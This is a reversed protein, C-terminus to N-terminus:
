ILKMSTAKYIASVMTKCDLKDFILQRKRKLSSESIKLRQAIQKIPIDEATSKLIAIEELDLAKIDSPLFKGDIFEYNEGTQINVIKAKCFVSLFHSVTVHCLGLWMNGNEDLKYPVLKHRLVVNQRNKAKAILDYSFELNQRESEPYTYFVNHAEENMQVLWQLESKLLVREYFDIGEIQILDRSHGFFGITSTDSHSTILKHNCYDVMYFNGECARDFLSLTKEINKPSYLREMRRPIKWPKQNKSELKM